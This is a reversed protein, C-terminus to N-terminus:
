KSKKLNFNKPKEVKGFPGIAGTLPFILAHRINEILAAFAHAIAGKKEVQWDPATKEKQKLSFTEFMARPWIEVIRHFEFKNVLFGAM